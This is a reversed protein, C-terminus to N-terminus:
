DMGYLDGGGLISRGHELQLVKLSPARELPEEEEEDESGADSSGTGCAGQRDDPESESESVCSSATEEDRDEEEESSSTFLHSSSSSGDQHESPSSEGSTDADAEADPTDHDLAHSHNVPAPSPVATSQPSTPPCTPTDNEADDQDKAHCSRTAATEESLLDAKNEVASFVAPMPRSQRIMQDGVVAPAPQEAKRTHHDVDRFRELSLKVSGAVDEEGFSCSGAWSRLPPDPLRYPNKCDIRCLTTKVPPRVGEGPKANGGPVTTKQLVGSSTPPTYVFPLPQTANKLIGKKPFLVAARSSCLNNSQRCDVPRPSVSSKKDVVPTSACSLHPPISAAAGGRAPKQEETAVGKSHDKRTERCERGGQHHSLSTSPTPAMDPHASAAYNDSAFSASLPPVRRGEDEEHNIKEILQLMKQQQETLFIADLNMDEVESGEVDEEFVSEDSSSLLESGSSSAANNVHPSRREGAARRELPTRAQGSHAHHEDGPAFARSRVQARAVPFVEKGAGHRNRKLCERLEDVNKIMGAKQLRPILKLMERSGEYGARHALFDDPFPIAGGQFCSFDFPDDTDFESDSSASYLGSEYSCGTTRHLRLAREHKRSQKVLMGFLRRSVLGSQRAQREYKRGVKEM